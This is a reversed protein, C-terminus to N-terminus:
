YENLYRVYKKLPVFGAFPETLIAVQSLRLLLDALSLWDLTIVEKKRAAQFPAENAPSVLQGLLHLVVESRVINTETNALLQNQIFLSVPSTHIKIPTICILVSMLTM